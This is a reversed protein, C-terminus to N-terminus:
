RSALVTDCSNTREHEMVEVDAHGVCTTHRMGLRELERSARTTASEHDAAKGGWQPVCVSRLMTKGSAHAGDGPHMGARAPFGTGVSVTGALFRKPNEAAWGRYRFRDVDPWLQDFSPLVGRGGEVDDVRCYGPVALVVPPPDRFAQQIAKRVREHLQTAATRTPLAFYMGDVLGVEFLQVFRSLAAETKGSGTESEVVTITGSMAIPLQVVASQIPRPQGAWEPAVRAYADRQQPDTRDCAPYDLGIGRLASQAYHRSREMRDATAGDSFPFYASDSGIWDALMVLGAFAHSLEPRDPLDRTRRAFAPPFWARCRALLDAVGAEPDLDARPLWVEPRWCQAAQEFTIPRGHHGLAALLLGSVGDGWDGLDALWEGLVGNLVAVAESVHGAPMGLGDRGNAQFGINFKGLDHLAALVALRSRQGFDLPEGALADFRAQWVPLTLLAEAVAAVDACHDVLPHWELVEEARSPKTLKGWFTTPTGRV